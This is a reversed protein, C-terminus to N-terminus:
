SAYRSHNVTHLNEYNPGMEELEIKYNRPPLCPAKDEGPQPVKM